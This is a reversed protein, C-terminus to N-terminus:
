NTKDFHVKFCQVYDIAFMKQTLYQIMKKFIVIENTIKFVIRIEKKFNNYKSFIRTLNRENNLHQIM